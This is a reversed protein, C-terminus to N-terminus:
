DIVFEKIYTNHDTATMYYTKKQTYVPLQFHLRILVYLSLTLFLFFPIQVERGYGM